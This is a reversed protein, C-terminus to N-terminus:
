FTVVTFAIYPLIFATFLLVSTTFLLIFAIYLLMFITGPFIFAGAIYLLYFSLVNFDIFSLFIPLCFIVSM